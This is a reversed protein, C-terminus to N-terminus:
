ILTFDAIPLTNRTVEEIKDRLRNLEKKDYDGICPFVAFNMKAASAFCFALLCLILTKKM